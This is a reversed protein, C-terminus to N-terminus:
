SLLVFTGSQTLTTLPIVLKSFKVEMELPKEKSGFKFRHILKKEIEEHKKGPSRIQNDFVTWPFPIFSIFKQFLYCM